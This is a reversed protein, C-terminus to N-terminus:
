KPSRLCTRLHKSAPQSPATTHPQTATTDFAMTTGVALSVAVVVVMAALPPPRRRQSVKHLGSTSPTETTKDNSLDRM